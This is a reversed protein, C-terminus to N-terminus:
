RGILEIKSIIDIKYPLNQLAPNDCVAQWNM